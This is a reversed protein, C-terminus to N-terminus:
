NKIRLLFSRDVVTWTHFFLPGRFGLKRDVVTWTHFFLPGRSAPGSFRANRLTASGTAGCLGLGWAGGGEGMGGCREGLGGLRM